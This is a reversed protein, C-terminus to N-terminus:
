ELRIIPSEWRGDLLRTLEKHGQCGQILSQGLYQLAHESNVKTPNNRYHNTCMYVAYVGLMTLALIEDEEQQKTAMAFCALANTPQLEIRM